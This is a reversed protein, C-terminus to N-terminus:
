VAVIHGEPEGSATPIFLHHPREKKCFEVIYRDIALTEGNAISGGGILVLMNFIEERSFSDIVGLARNNTRKVIKERTLHEPM